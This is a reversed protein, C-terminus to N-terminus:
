TRVSASESLRSRRRWILVVGGLALLAAGALGLLSGIRFSNYEANGFAAGGFYAIFLLASQLGFALLMGGLWCWTEGHVLATVVLALVIVGVGLPELAFLQLQKPASSDYISVAYGGRGGGNVPVFTAAIVLGAGIGALAVAFVNREGPQKV